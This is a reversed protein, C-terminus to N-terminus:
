HKTRLLIIRKINEKMQHVMNKKFRELQGQNCHIYIEWHATKFVISCLEVSTFINKCGRVYPLIRKYLHTRCHEWLSPFDFFIQFIMFFFDMCPFIMPNSFAQIIMSFWPIKHFLNVFGGTALFSVTLCM